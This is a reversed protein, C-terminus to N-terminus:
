IVLRMAPESKIPHYPGFITFDGDMKGLLIVFKWQLRNIFGMWLSFCCHINHILLCNSVNFYLNPYCISHISQLFSLYCVM